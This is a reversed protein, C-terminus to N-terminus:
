RAVAKRRAEPTPRRDILKDTAGILWHGRKRRYRGHWLAFGNCGCRAHGECTKETTCMRLICHIGEIWKSLHPDIVFYCDNSPAKDTPFNQADGSHLEDPMDKDPGIVIAVIRDGVAFAYTAQLATKDHRRGISMSNRQPPAMLFTAISRSHRHVALYNM